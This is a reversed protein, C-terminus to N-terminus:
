ISAIVLFGNGERIEADRFLLSIVGTASCFETLFLYRVSPERLFIRRSTM